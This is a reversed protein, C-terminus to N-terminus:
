PNNKLYNDLYPTIKISFYKLIPFGYDTFDEDKLSDRRKKGTMGRFSDESISRSRKM